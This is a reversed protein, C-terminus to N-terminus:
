ESPEERDGDTAVYVTASSGGAGGPQASAVVRALGERVLRELQRKAKLRQADTPDTKEFMARAVDMTTAPSTRLRLFRLADFGRTVTSTGAHHDHEIKLPGVEEAPQKLHVLEVIPDGAAGWLLVVSGAGAAIWTSGYLDELTKPKVGGVGKRQHHLALVQVGEAVCTQMARNLGAGVGDDSLGIAVDKLSDLVVTDAKAERALQVLLEPMAALDKPPPGSWAVFREDLLERDGETVLRGLARRIQAPRDCALYLTRTTGAEVPMGLVEHLLGLRAMVLQAALTTKGTGAPGCLILSEDRAWLVQGESGWLAPPTEPVDLLFSGGRRFRLSSTAAVVAAEVDAPSDTQAGPADEVIQRALDDARGIDQAEDAAIAAIARAREIKRRRRALDAVVRAYLPSADTAPPAVQLALLVGAGGAAELQGTARLEAAVTVPDPQEGRAVLASMADYILRHAPRYFDDRGALIRHAAAMADVRHLVCGLLSEEAEIDHPPAQSHPRRPPYWTPEPPPADEDGYPVIDTEHATSRATSM